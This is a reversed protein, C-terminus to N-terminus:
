ERTYASQFSEKLLSQLAEKMEAPRPNGTCAYVSDEDIVPFGSATAQLVNLVKRMDGNALRLIASIGNPQLRSALGEKEAVYSLRSHIDELRLPAFRFRTCRSQLAPIIKSVFNCILCFRTTKSYKEIVALSSPCPALPFSPISAVHLCSYCPLAPVALPSLCAERDLGVGSEGHWGEVGSAGGWGWGQGAGESM